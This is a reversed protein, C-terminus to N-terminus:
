YSQDLGDLARLLRGGCVRELRTAYDLFAPGDDAIELTLRGSADRYEKM